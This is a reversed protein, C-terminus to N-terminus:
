FEGRRACINSRLKIEKGNAQGWVALYDREPLAFLFAGVIEGLFSDMIYSYRDYLPYLSICRLM